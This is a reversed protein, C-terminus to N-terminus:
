YNTKTQFTNCLCATQLLRQKKDRPPDFQITKRHVQPGPAGLIVLLNVFFRSEVNNYGTRFDSASFSFRAFSAFRVEQSRRNWVKQELRAAFVIFVRTVLFLFRLISMFFCSIPRRLNLASVHDRQSAVRSFHRGRNVVPDDMNLHLIVM